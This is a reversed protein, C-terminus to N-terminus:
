TLCITDEQREWEIETHGCKPCRLVNVTVNKYREIEDYRCPDLENVGDPYVAVGNPHTCKNNRNQQDSYPCVAANYAKVAEILNHERLCVGIPRFGMEQHEGKYRCSDCKHETM